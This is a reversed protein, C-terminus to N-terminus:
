SLSSCVAGVWCESGVSRHRISKLIYFSVLTLILFFYKATLTTLYQLTTERSVNLATHVMPNRAVQDLQFTETWPLHTASSSSKIDRGVCVMRHNRYNQIARM